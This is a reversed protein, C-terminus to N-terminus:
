QTHKQTHACCEEALACFDANPGRRSTLNVSSTHHAQGSRAAAPSASPAEAQCEVSHLLLCRQVYATFKAQKHSGVPHEQQKRLTPKYGSTRCGSCALAGQCATNHIEVKHPQAKTESAYAWCHPHIRIYAIGESHQVPSQIKPSCFHTKLVQSTSDCYPPPAPSAHKCSLCPSTTPSSNLRGHMYWVQQILHVHAQSAPQSLNHRGLSGHTTCPHQQLQLTRPGDPV